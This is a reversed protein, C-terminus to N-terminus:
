QAGVSSKNTPTNTSPSKTMHQMMVHSGINLKTPSVKKSSRQQVQIKILHQKSKSATPSKGSPPSKLPPTRDDPTALSPPSLIM